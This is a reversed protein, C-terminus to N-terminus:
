QASLGARIFAVVTDVLEAGTDEDTQDLGVSERLAKQYIGFFIPQGAFSLSLLMPSGERVTGDRQGAAVLRTMKALNNKITLRIPAPIPEESALVQLLLRPIDSQKRLITFISRVTTEIQDIASAGDVNIQAVQERIPATADDLVAHYLAQKSGFHYTVAGLNTQAESTIARITTGKFGCRAFLGRAADILNARTGSDNM